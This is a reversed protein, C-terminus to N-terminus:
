RWTGAQPDWQGRAAEPLALAAIVPELFRRLDALLEIFAPPPMAPPTRRLFGTWLGRQAVLEAFADDLGAPAEDPVITERRRFTGGVAEVLQSLEFPFTRTIVWIDYYDKVRGNARGFRLIVEFKEAVVTEPPYMLIRTAPMGALLNPFAQRTPPPYVHDGFGIDVIVPIVARALTARVHLRVGQYGDNERIPELRLTAPDFLVGDEPVAVQCIGTFLETIAAPSADGHGLLDLDVTPRLAHAPWTAFLMAGKLMYHDTAATASIRYLLREIAYRTLVRQFNDGHVQAHQYLRARVSAGVDKPLKTAM